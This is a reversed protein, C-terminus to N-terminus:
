HRKQAGVRHPIREAAIGAKLLQEGGLPLQGGGTLLGMRKKAAVYSAHASQGDNTSKCISPARASRRAAGGRGSEGYTGDM